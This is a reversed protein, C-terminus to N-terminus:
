APSDPWVWPALRCEPPTSASCAAATLMLGSASADRLGFACAGDTVRHVAVYGCKAMTVGLSAYAWISGHTTGMSRLTSKAAVDIGSFGSTSRVGSPSYLHCLHRRAELTLPLPLGEGASPVGLARLSAAQWLGSVMRGQRAPVFNKKVLGKM